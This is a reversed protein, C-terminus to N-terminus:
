LAPIKDPLLNASGPNKFPKCVLSIVDEFTIASLSDDYPMFDISAAWFIGDKVTGTHGCIDCVWYRCDNDMGIDLLPYPCKCLTNSIAKLRYVEGSKYAREPHSRIAIVKGGTEFYSM